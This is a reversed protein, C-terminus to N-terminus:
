SLLFHSIRNPAIWRTLFKVDGLAVGEEPTPTKGNAQPDSCKEVSEYLPPFYCKRAVCRNPIEKWRAICRRWNSCGDQRRRWSLQIELLTSSFPFHLVRKNLIGLDLLITEERGFVVKPKAGQDSHKGLKPYFFLPSIRKPSNMQQSNRIALPRGLNSIAAFPGYFCAYSSHM